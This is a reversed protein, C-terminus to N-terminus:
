AHQASLFKYFLLLLVGVMEYLKLNPKFFTNFISLTRISKYMGVEGKSDRHSKVHKQLLRKTVRVTIQLPSFM